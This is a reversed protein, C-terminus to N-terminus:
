SLVPPARPALSLNIFWLNPLANLSVIPRADSDEVFSRYAPAGDVHLAADLVLVITASIWSILLALCTHGLVISTPHYWAVDSVLGEGGHLPFGLVAVGSAVGYWVVSLIFPSFGIWRTILAGLAGYAAPALMTVSFFATSVEVPQSARQFAVTLVAVTLGWLAGGLAGWLVNGLRALLILPLLGISGILIPTTTYRGLVALCAGSMTAIVLSVLIGLAEGRIFSGERVPWRNRAYSRVMAFGCGVTAHATQLASNSNDVGTVNQM